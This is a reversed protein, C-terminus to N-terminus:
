SFFLFERTMIQFFKGRAKECTDSFKMNISVDLHDFPFLLSFLRFGCTGGFFFFPNSLPIMFFLFFCLLTLFLSLVESFLFFFFFLSFFFSFLLFLLLLRLVCSHPLKEHGNCLSHTSEKTKIFHCHDTSNTHSSVVRFKTVLHVFLSLSFIHHFGEKFFHSLFSLSLFSLSHTFCISKKRERQKPVCKLTRVNLLRERMQQDSLFMEWAREGSVDCLILHSDCTGQLKFLWFRRFESRIIRDKGIESYLVRERLKNHDFCVSLFSRGSTSGEREMGIM